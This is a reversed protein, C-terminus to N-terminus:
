SLERLFVGEEERETPSPFPSAQVMGVEQQASEVSLHIQSLCITLAEERNHHRGDRRGRRRPRPAGRRVSGPHLGRPLRYPRMCMRGRRLRVRRGCMQLRPRVQLCVQESLATPSRSHPTLGRTQTGPTAHTVCGVASKGTAQIAKILEPTKATGEIVALKNSFTVKASSVGPVALLSKEVGGVCGGCTMGDVKLVVRQQCNAM